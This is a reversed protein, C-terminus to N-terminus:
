IQSKRPFYIEVITAGTEVPPKKRMPRDQGIAPMQNLVKSIRVMEKTLIQSFFGPQRSTTETELWPRRVQKKNKV